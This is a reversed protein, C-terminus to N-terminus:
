LQILIEASSQNWKEVIESIQIKINRLKSDILDKALEKDMSIQTM